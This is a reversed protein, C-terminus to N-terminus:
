TVVPHLDSMTFVPAHGAQETIQEEEDDAMPDPDDAKSEESPTVAM